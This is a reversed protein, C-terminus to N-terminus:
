FSFKYGLGLVVRGFDQNWKTKIESKNYNGKYSNAPTANNPDTYTNKVTETFTYTAKTIAYSIDFVFNNWEVGAGISYYLGNTITGTSFTSVRNYENDKGKNYTKDATNSGSVETSISNIAYGFNAQLYPVANGFNRLNAKVSLYVPISNYNPMTYEKTYSEKTITDISSITDTLTSNSDVKMKSQAPNVHYGAGAGVEFTDSLSKTYILDASYGIGDAAGDFDNNGGASTGNYKDVTGANTTDFNFENTSTYGDIPGYQGLFNVGGKLYVNNGEAMAVASLVVLGLLVKKM